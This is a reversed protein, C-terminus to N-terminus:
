DSLLAKFAASDKILRFDRDFRAKVLLRRAAARRMAKLQRLYGLARGEDSALAAVCARRYILQPSRPSLLAASELASEAEKLKGRHALASGQQLLGRAVRPLSIALPALTPECSRRVLLLLLQRNPSRRGGVLGLAKCDDEPRWIRIRRKGRVLHVGDAEARLAIGRGVLRDAGRPRLVDGARHGRESPPAADLRAGTRADLLLLEGRERLLVQKSDRSFGVISLEGEARAHSTLLLGAFLLWSRTMGRM